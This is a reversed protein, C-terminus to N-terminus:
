ASKRQSKTAPKKAIAGWLEADRNTSRFTAASLRYNADLINQRPQHILIPTEFQCKMQGVVFLLIVALRFGRCSNAIDISQM